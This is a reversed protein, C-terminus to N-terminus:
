VSTYIHSLDYFYERCTKLVVRTQGERLIHTDGDEM